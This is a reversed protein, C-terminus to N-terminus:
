GRIYDFLNMGSIKAFSSMAAELAMMEKNMRTAAEAYDLDEVDSLTSKLRLATEDLMDIQSQVVVQDSGTQALAFTVSNFMQSTDGIGQQIGSTNSAEVAAVMEDIAKFFGVSQANGASDTRIVRSFIDTGSRTFNVTREVGAPISTQTQDGQYIVNGNGDEAFAPTNVRTASFIYNGNDDQSNGTSLLQDRISRM